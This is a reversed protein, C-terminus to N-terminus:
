NISPPVRRMCDEFDQAGKLALYCDAGAMMLATALQIQWRFAPLLWRSLKWQLSQNQWVRIRTWYSILVFLSICIMLFCIHNFIAIFKNRYDTDQFRSNHKHKCILMIMPRSLLRLALGACIIIITVRILIMNMSTHLLIINVYCFLCSFLEMSYFVTRVWFATNNLKM